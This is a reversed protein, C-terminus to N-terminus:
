RAHFLIVEVAVTVVIFVLAILAGIIITKGEQRQEKLENGLKTVEKALSKLTAELLSIDPKTVSTQKTKKQKKKLDAM